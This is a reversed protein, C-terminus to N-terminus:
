ESDTDSAVLLECKRMAWLGVSSLVMVVLGGLSWLLWANGAAKELLALTAASKSEDALEAPSLVRDLQFYPLVPIVVLGIAVFGVGVALMAAFCLKPARASRCQM